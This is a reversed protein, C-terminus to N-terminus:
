SFYGLIAGMGLLSVLYYGANLIWLKLPKGEWLFVGATIPMAFGLWYWFAGQLGGSVGSTELYANGFVLGHALVYAMVLATVLGGAMAQLPSLAMSRMSEDTFGMMAKWKAGFVPGYWLGGLVLAFVAAGLVALYNIPVM